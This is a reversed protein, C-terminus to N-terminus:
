VALIIVTDGEGVRDGEKVLIKEVVGDDPALIPIEMKMSELLIVPMEETVADGEKVLLKWVMGAVDALIRTEAM